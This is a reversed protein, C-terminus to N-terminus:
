FGSEVPALIEGGGAEKVRGPFSRQARLLPASSFLLGNSSSGACSQQVIYTSVIVLVHCVFVYLCSAGLGSRGFPSSDTM